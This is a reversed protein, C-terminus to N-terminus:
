NRFYNIKTNKLYLLTYHIGCKIKGNKEVPFKYILVCVAFLADVILQEMITHIVQDNNIQPRYEM